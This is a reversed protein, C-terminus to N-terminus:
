PYMQKIMKIDTPSVRTNENTPGLGDAFLKGDFSYLMISKPDFATAAIGRPSYKDLVNSKIDAASWYNPPGSFYKMVAAVDWKRTFKPQQHEHICGLAHGFEHTVVRHYEEDATNDRLWGYNMTPQHLPFYSANLADRGVASWSGSDAYFSIRVEADGSTVFKIKIDAYKEWEKAIASVAKKMKASGDLFRGRVTSGPAWKKSTIVAMRAIQAVGSAKLRRPGGAADVMQRRMERRVMREPDLDDPIIREFCIKVIPDGPLTAQSKSTSAKAKKAMTEGTASLGVQIKPRYGDAGRATL